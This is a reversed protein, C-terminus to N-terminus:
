RAGASTYVTCERAFLSYLVIIFIVISLALKILAIVRDFNLDVRIPMLYFVYLM